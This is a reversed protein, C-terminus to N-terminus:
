LLKELNKKEMRTLNIKEDWWLTQNNQKNEYVLWDVIKCHSKIINALWNKQKLKVFDPELLVNRSNDRQCAVETVKLPAVKLSETVWEPTSWPDLRPGAM